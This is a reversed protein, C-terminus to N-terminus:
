RLILIAALMILVGELFASFYEAKHHGDPHEDAPKASWMVAVLAAAPDGRQIADSLLAESGTLHYSRRM